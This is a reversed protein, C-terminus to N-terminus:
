NKIQKNIRLYMTYKIIPRRSEIGSKKKQKKAKM